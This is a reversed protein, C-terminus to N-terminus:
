EDDLRELGPIMPQNISFLSENLILSDYSLLGGHEELGGIKDCRDDENREELENLLLRGKELVGKLRDSINTIQDKVDSILKECRQYDEEDTQRELQYWLTDSLSKEQAFVRKVQRLIETEKFEVNARAAEAKLGFTFGADTILQSTHVLCEDVSKCKMLKQAYKPVITTLMRVQLARVEQM